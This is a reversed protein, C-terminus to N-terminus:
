WSYRVTLQAGTVSDVTGGDTWNVGGTVSLKGNTAGLGLEAMASTGETNTAGLLGDNVSYAYEGDFEHVANLSGYPIWTFGAGEFTTDLAVGLRGRSSEGGENVFTAQSGYLPAFDGVRTYTYQAQPTVHIGAVTWATFGAEVNFADASVKTKQTGTASRLRADIGTWRQSVDLYFSDTLWTGYLGFTRGDLRDSGVGGGLHQSGESDGILVGIALHESPRTDLGLEWGHNSQNFGFTGGPGFNSSHEANVDGSDRFVRVWPALGSDGSKV